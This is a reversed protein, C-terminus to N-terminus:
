IGMIKETEFTPM